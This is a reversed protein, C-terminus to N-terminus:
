HKVKDDKLDGIKTETIISTTPSTPTEPFNAPPTGPVVYTYTHTHNKMHDELINLKDVV